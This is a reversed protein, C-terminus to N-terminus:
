PWQLGHDPGSKLADVLSPLDELLKMLLEEEEEEDVFCVGSVEGELQCTTSSHAPQSELMVTPIPVDFSDPSTLDGLTIIDTWWSDDEAAIGDIAVPVTLSYSSEATNEKVVPFSTSSHAPQSEFMLTPCHQHEIRPRKPQFHQVFAESDEVREETPKSKRKRDGCVKKQGVTSKNRKLRCLVTDYSDLSYEHMIWARDQPSSPNEYRFRKKLGKFNGVQFTEGSDEGAWTGSAVTRSIRRSKSSKKKLNTFFFLSPDYERLSDGGFLAWIESPEHSGYLDFQIVDNHESVLSPQFIRNYLYFGFLESDTPNFRYGVRFQM